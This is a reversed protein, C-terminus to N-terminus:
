EANRFLFLHDQCLVAWFVRPTGTWGLSSQVKRSLPQNTSVVLFSYAESTSMMAHWKGLAATKPISFKVTKKMFPEFFNLRAKDNKSTNVNAM